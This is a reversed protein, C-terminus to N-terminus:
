RDLWEVDRIRWSLLRFHVRFKRRTESQGERYTLAFHNKFWELREFEKHNSSCWDRTFAEVSALTFRQSLWGHIMIPAVLATISASISVLAEVGPTMELWRIQALLGAAIAYLLFILLLSM